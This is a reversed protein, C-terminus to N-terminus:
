TLVADRGTLAPKCEPFNERSLSNKRHKTVEWACSIPELCFFNEKRPFNEQTSVPGLPKVPNFGLNFKVVFRVWYPYNVLFM